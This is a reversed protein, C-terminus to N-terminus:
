KSLYGYVHPYYKSLIAVLTQRGEVVAMRLRASHMFLEVPNRGAFSKLQPLLDLLFLRVYPFPSSEKSYITTTSLHIQLYEVIAILCPLESTDRTEVVEALYAFLAEVNLAYRDGVTRLLRDCWQKVRTKDHLLDLRQSSVVSTTTWEIVSSADFPLTIPPQLRSSNNNSTGRPEDSMGKEVGAFLLRYISSLIAEFM